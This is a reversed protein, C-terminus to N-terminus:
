IEQRNFAPLAVLAAIVLWAVLLVAGEPRSFRDHVSPDALLSAQAGGPLWRGVLPFFQVALAEFTTTYLVVAIVAPVQSRILAGLFVGWPGGLASVVIVLAMLGFLRGSLPLGYGYAALVGKSIAVTSVVAVLGYLAGVATAVMAKAVLLAGRSSTM